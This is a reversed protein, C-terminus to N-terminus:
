APYQTLADSLAVLEALDLTEPRRRGDIGSRRLAEGPDETTYALLANALTKRRRTFLRKVLADFEARHRPMPHPSHLVLRVVASQVNPVPRFAGPPLALIRQVDAQHRILIALVGYEKTRPPAILRDAVERQVM